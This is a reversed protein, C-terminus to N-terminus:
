PAVGGADGRNWFAASREANKKGQLGGGFMAVIRGQGDVVDWQRAQKNYEVSYGM